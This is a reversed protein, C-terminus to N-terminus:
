EQGQPQLVNKQVPFSLDKTRQTIDGLAPCPSCRKNALASNFDVQPLLGGKRPSNFMTSAAPPVAYLGNEQKFTRDIWDMYKRCYRCSKRSAGNQKCKQSLPKFEAWAFLPWSRCGGSKRPGSIPSNTRQRM